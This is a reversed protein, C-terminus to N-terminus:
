HNANLKCALTAKNLEDRSQAQPVQMLDFVCRSTAWLSHMTIHKAAGECHNAHMNRTTCKELAPPELGNRSCTALPMAFPIASADRPMVSFVWGALHSSAMCQTNTHAKFRRPRHAQPATLRGITNPLFDNSTDDTKNLRAGSRACENKCSM